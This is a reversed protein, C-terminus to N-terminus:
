KKMKVNDRVILDLNYVFCSFRSLLIKKSASTVQVGIFSCAMLVKKKRGGLPYLYIEFFFLLITFFLLLFFVCIIIDQADLMNSSKIISLKTKNVFSKRNFLSAM